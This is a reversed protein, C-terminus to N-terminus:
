QIDEEIEKGSESLGVYKYMRRISKRLKTVRKRQLEKVTYRKSVHFM